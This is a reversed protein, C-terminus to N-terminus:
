DKYQSGDWAKAVFQHYCKETPTDDDREFFMTELVCFISRNFLHVDESHVDNHRGGHPQSVYQKQGPRRDTQGDM